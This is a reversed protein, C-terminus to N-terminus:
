ADAAALGGLSVLSIAWATSCESSVPRLARIPENSSWRREVQSLSPSAIAACSSSAASSSASNASLPSHRKM